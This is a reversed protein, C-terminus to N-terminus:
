NNSIFNAVSERLIRVHTGVKCAKLDGRNELNMVTRETCRLHEAVEGRLMLEPYEKLAKM